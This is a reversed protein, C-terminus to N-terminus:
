LWGVSIFPISEPGYQKQLCAVSQNLEKYLDHKNKADFAEFRTGETFLVGPITMPNFCCHPPMVFWAGRYDYDRWMEALEDHVAFRFDGHVAFVHHQSAKSLQIARKWKPMQPEPPPKRYKLARQKPTM